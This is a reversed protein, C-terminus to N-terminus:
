ECIDNIAKVFELYAAGLVDMSHLYDPNVPDISFVPWEAQHLSVLRRYRSHLNEFERLMAADGRQSLVRRGTAGLAAITEQLTRRLSIHNRQWGEPRAQVFRVFEQSINGFTELKQRLALLESV